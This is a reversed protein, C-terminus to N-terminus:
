PFHCPDADAWSLQAKFNLLHGISIKSKTLSKYHLSKKARKEHSQSLGCKQIQTNLDKLLFKKQSDARNLWNSLVLEM